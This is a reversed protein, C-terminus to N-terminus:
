IPYINHKKILEKIQRCITSHSQKSNSAIIVGGQNFNSKNYSLEQNDLNTIAGGSAKLIAEPAAFDWDKPCSKGPMSLCIYIDSEGRLISAIKCGISGMIIKEKFEIKNILMELNENRHNRSTVIKMDNLNKKRSLKIEKKFGDKTECIVKEGDSIWLENKEPILVIGIYPKQMYNLALHMAYNGTGQIFDRTGDLPDLVWLWKTNTIKNLRSTKIKVNEESLIDWEVDKFNKNLRKIILNNVNLDALTVPDENNKSKIIEKKYVPNRMMQSYNLLIESAEWSVIRLHDILNDKLIGTPLKFM